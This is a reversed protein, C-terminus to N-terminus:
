PQLRSDHFTIGQADLSAYEGRKVAQMMADARALMTEPTDHEQMTVIGIDLGVHLNDPIGHNHASAEFSGSLRKTTEKDLEQQTQGEKPQYGFLALGFEDGSLRAAIDGERVIEGFAKGTAELLSDGKQHGAQDNTRKLGRVDGYALGVPIGSKKAMWFLQTFREKFQRRNALGTLEDTYAKNYLDKNDIMMAGIQRAYRRREDNVAVRVEKPPTPLFHVPEPHSYPRRKELM